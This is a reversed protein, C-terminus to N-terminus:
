MKLAKFKLHKYRLDPISAEWSREGYYSIDIVKPEIITKLSSDSFIVKVISLIHRIRTVSKQGFRQYFSLDYYVHVNLRYFLYTWKDNIDRNM